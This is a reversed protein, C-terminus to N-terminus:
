YNTIGHLIVYIFNKTEAFHELKPKPGVTKLRQILKKKHKLALYSTM